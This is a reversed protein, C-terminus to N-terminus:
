NSPLKSASPGAPRARRVVAQWDETSLTVADELLMDPIDDHIRFHLRCEANTCVLSTGDLVLRAHCKTCVLIGDLLNTDIGM